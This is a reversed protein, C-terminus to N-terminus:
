AVISLNSKMLLTACRFNRCYWKKNDLFTLSINKISYITFQLHKIYFNVKLKIVTEYLILDFEEFNYYDIKEFILLIFLVYNLNIFFTM